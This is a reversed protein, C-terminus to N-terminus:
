LTTVPENSVPVPTTFVAAVDCVPPEIPENKGSKPIMNNFAVWISSIAPIAVALLASANSSLGLFNKLLITVPPFNWTLLSSSILEVLKKQLTLLLFYLKLALGVNKVPESPENVFEVNKLSGLTYM